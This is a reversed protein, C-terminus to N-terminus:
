ETRRRATAAWRFPRDSQEELALTGQPGGLRLISRPIPTLLVIASASIISATRVGRSHRVATIEEDSPWGKTELLNMLSSVGM